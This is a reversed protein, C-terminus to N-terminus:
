TRAPPEMGGFISILPPECRPNQAMAAYGGGPGSVIMSFIRGQPQALAIARSAFGIPELEVVIAAQSTIEPAGSVKNRPPIPPVRGLDRTSTRRLTLTLVVARTRLRLKPRDWAQWCHTCAIQDLVLFGLMLAFVIETGFGM